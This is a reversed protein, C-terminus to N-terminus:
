TATVVIVGTMDEHGSGCFVDCYFDFRGAKEPTIQLQKVMGPLMDSRVNLAPANFGMVVDEATLELVVTEGQELHITDPVFAFKRSAIKIVRPTSIAKAFVVGAGLALAAAMLLRRQQDVAM